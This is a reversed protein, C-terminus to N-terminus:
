PNFRVIQNYFKPGQDREEQQKLKKDINLISQRGQQAKLTETLIFLNNNNIINVFAYLNDNRHIEKVNSRIQMIVELM